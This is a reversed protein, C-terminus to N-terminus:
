TDEKYPQKLWEKIKHPDYDIITTGCIFKGVEDQYVGCCEDDYVECLFEALAEDTMSRIHDANTFTSKKRIRANNWLNVAREEIYNSTCTKEGCNNCEVFFKSRRTQKLTGECGCIPCPKLIDVNM